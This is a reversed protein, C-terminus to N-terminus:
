ARPVATGQWGPRDAALASVLTILWVLAFYVDWLRFPGDRVDAGPRESM